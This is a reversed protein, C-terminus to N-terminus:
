FSKCLIKNICGQIKHIIRYLYFPLINGQFAYYTGWNYGNNREIIQFSEPFYKLIYPRIEGYQRFFALLRGKEYNARTYIADMKEKDKQYGYRNIISELNLMCEEFLKVRKDINNKNTM